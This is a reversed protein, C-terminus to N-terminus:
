MTNYFLVVNLFKAAETMNQATFVITNGGRRTV